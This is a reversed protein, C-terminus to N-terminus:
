LDYFDLASSRFQLRALNTTESPSAGLDSTPTRVLRCSGFPHTYAGQQSRDLYGQTPVKMRSDGKEIARIGCINIRRQEQLLGCCRSSLIM